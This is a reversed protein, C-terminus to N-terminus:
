LSIIPTWDLNTFEVKPKNGERMSMYPKLEAAFQSGGLQAITKLVKMRSGGFDAWYVKLLGPLEISKQLPDLRVHELIFRRACRMLEEHVTNLDKIVSLAPSSLSACFLGFTVNPCPKELVYLRRPDRDLTFKLFNTFM